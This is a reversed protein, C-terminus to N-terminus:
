IEELDVVGFVIDEDYLYKKAIGDFKYCESIGITKHLAYHITEHSITMITERVSFEFSTIVISNQSPCYFGGHRMDPPYIELELSDEVLDKPYKREINEKCDKCIRYAGYPETDERLEKCFDCKFLKYNNYIAIVEKQLEKIEKKTLTMEIRDGIIKGITYYIDKKILYL